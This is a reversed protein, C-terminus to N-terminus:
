NDIKNLSEDEEKNLQRQQAIVLLAKVKAELKQTTVKKELCIQYLTVFIPGKSQLKRNLPLPHEIVKQKLAKNYSLDLHFGRYDFIALESFATM